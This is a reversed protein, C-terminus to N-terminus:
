SEKRGGRGGRQVTSGGASSEDLLHVIIESSVNKNQQARSQNSWEVLPDHVFAQIYTFLMDEQERMVQATVEAARRFHGEYGTVGM